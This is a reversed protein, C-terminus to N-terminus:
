ACHWENSHHQCSITSIWPLHCAPSGEAKSSTCLDSKELGAEGGSRHQVKAYSSPVTHNPPDIIPSCRHSSVVLSQHSPLVWAYLLSESTYLPSQCISLIRVYHPTVRFHYSSRQGSHPVESTFTPNQHSTWKMSVIKHVTEPGPKRNILLM